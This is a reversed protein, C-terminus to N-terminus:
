TKPKRPIAEKEGPRATRTNVEVVETVRRKGRDDETRVRLTTGRPVWVYGAAKLVSMHLFADGSSNSLAVFGFQKNLDFWAVTATEDDSVSRHSLPAQPENDSNSM